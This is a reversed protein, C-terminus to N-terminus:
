LTHAPRWAFARNEIRAIVGHELILMLVVFLIIWALVQDMSFQEFWFFFMYGIGFKIGFTEALAVIKWTMGFAYRFASFIYPMLQPIFVKRILMGRRAKFVKAMDILSKDMAKTGECMNVTVFPTVVAMVAVLSGVESFGFWLVALFVMLITPMTLMLPILSLLSHEVTKRLGMALGIGVGALMAATFTIIIRLLTIGIHFYASKGEPGPTWMNEWITKGILVPGPLVEPDMWVSGVWWAFLLVFISGVRLGARVNVGSKM